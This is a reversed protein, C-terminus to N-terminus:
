EWDSLSEPRPLNSIALEGGPIAVFGLIKLDEHGINKVAHAQGSKVLIADGPELTCREGDQYNEAKGSVVYLIEENGEHRHYGAYAGPELVLDFFGMSSGIKGQFFIYALAKGKGDHLDQIERQEGLKDKITM